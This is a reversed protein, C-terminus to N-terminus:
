FESWTLSLTHYIIGIIAHPSFTESAEIGSKTGPLSHHNLRCLCFGGRHHLRISLYPKASISSFLIFSFLGEFNWLMDSIWLSHSSFVLVPRLNSCHFLPYCHCFKGTSHFLLHLSGGGGGCKNKRAVGRWKRRSHATPNEYYRAATAPRVQNQLLREQIQPPKLSTSPAHGLILQHDKVDEHELCQDIYGLNDFLLFISKTPGASEVTTNHVVGEEKSFTKLALVSPYRATVPSSNVTGSSAANTAGGGAAM